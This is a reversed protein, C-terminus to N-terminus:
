KDSNKSKISIKLKPFANMLRKTLVSRKRFERVVNSTITYQFYKFETLKYKVKESSYKLRSVFLQKRFEAKKSFENIMLEGNKAFKRGKYIANRQLKLTIYKVNRTTTIINEGIEDAKDEAIKAVMKSIEETNDKQKYVEKKFSRIVVFSFIFDVAFGITLIVFLIFSYKTDLTQLLRNLFPNVYYVIITGAIGFFILNKLCIRGNINFRVNSYDWWRANFFKEMFFSVFYELFGCLFMSLLFLLVINTKFRELLLSISIIGVGYIPCYPGILFGRNVKKGTKIWIRITEMCWGAFSYIFFTLIIIEFKILNVNNIYESM